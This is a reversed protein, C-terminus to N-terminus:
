AEEKWDAEDDELTDLDSTHSSERGCRMTRDGGRRRTRHNEVSRHRRLSHRIM